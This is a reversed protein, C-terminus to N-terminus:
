AGAGILAEARACVLRLGRGSRELVLTQGDFLYRFDRNAAALTEIREILQPDLPQYLNRDLVVVIGIRPQHHPRHDADGGGPYLCRAATAISGASKRRFACGSMGTRLWPLPLIRPSRVTNAGIKVTLLNQSGRSSSSSVSRSRTTSPTSWRRWTRPTIGIVIPKGDYSSSCRSIFRPHRRFDGIAVDVSGNHRQVQADLFNMPPNGIFGGVFETAPQDHRHDPPRVPPITGNRMVAIRDGHEAGRDSRAHRSRRRRFRPWPRKGLADMWGCCPCRPQEAPEDMLLVQSKMAIAGRGRQRQGGSM